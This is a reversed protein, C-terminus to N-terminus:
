AAREPGDPLRQEPHLHVVVALGDIVQQRAGLHVAVAEADGARGAAAVLRHVGAGEVLAEPGHPRDARDARILRVETGRAADALYQRPRQAEALFAIHQRQDRRPREQDDVSRHVGELEADALGLLAHGAGPRYESEVVHLFLEPVGGELRRVVVVLRHALRHVAPHRAPELLLTLALGDGLRLVVDLFRVVQGTEGVVIPRLTKEKRRA